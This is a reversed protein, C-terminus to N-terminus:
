HPRQKGKKALKPPPPSLDIPTFAQAECADMIVSLRIGKYVDNDFFVSYVLRTDSTPAPTPRDFISSERPSADTAPAVSPPRTGRLCLFYHGPGHDTPRLSSIELPASLKAESVAAKVGSIIADQTPPSPPVYTVPPLEIQDSSCASLVLCLLPMIGRNSAARM